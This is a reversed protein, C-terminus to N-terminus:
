TVVIYALVQNMEVLQGLKVLWQVKGTAPAPVDYFFKMVEIQMIIAEKEVVAGEEALRMAAVGLCPALVEIRM